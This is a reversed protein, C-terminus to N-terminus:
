APRGDTGLRGPHGQRHQPQRHRRQGLHHPPAAQATGPALRQQGLRRGLRLPRPPLRRDSGPGPRSRRRATAVAPDDTAATTPQTTPQSAAPQTAALPRSPVPPWPPRLIAACRRRSAPFDAATGDLVGKILTGAWYAEFDGGGHQQKWRRWHDRVIDYGAAAPSRSSARDAADRPRRRGRVLEQGAGVGARAVAPMVFQQTAPKSRTTSDIVAALVEHVSRSNPYLPAILPQIISATGDYARLDGWMELYHTDPLHWQCKRAPRTRTCASTSRLHGQLRGAGQRLRHRCPATYVPNGGLILLLDVQGASLDDALERLSQDGTKDGNPRAEVPKTFTVTQGVNGLAANLAYALAHVEPPQYEGAVVLSAGRNARLDDILADLWKIAAM